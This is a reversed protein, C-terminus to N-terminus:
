GARSEVPRAAGSPFRPSLKRAAEAVWREERDVGAFRAPARLYPYLLRSWHCLGCGIDALSAAERLRWRTAMLDLFDHIGGSIVSRASSSPPTLPPSFRSQHVARPKPRRKLM